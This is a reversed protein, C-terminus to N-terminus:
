KPRNIGLKKMRSYLTTPKLGLIEAAGNDGRIRWKTNELVNLIHQKQLADLSILTKSEQNDPLEVHLIKGTETIIAREIINRLERVNGPWSYQQITEISGKSIAIIQRGMTESIKKIFTWTIPLIDAPRERLPSIHIPFVNLRYYLDKRFRGEQVRKELDQNTAAILRIDTHITKTSGLREFEGEELVRLMKVQLGLPLEGIEDLFITSGDAIEFRGAQKTLAGTYAGKERGFLEGEVLTSPLAACNITIMARHNRSSTKHIARAILEKGTGTEGTILVSSDTPAVRKIKGIVEKISESEGIIEGQSQISEIEKQLFINENYLQDKLMLIEKHAGRLELDSKKRFLANAIVEAILRLRQILEEQWDIKFTDHTGLCVALVFKGEFFYPIMLGSKVGLKKFNKIDTPSEVPLDEPNKFFIAEDKKTLLQTLMPFDDKTYMGLISINGKVTWSQTIQLRGNNDDIRAVDIRDLGLAKGIQKLVEEVRNDIKDAPINIFSAFLDSLLKEFQIREAHNKKIDSEIQVCENIKEELQSYTPKETM